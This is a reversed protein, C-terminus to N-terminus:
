DSNGLAPVKSNEPVLITRDLFEVELTANVSTEEEGVVGGERRVRLLDGSEAEVAQVVVQDRAAQVVRDLQPVEITLPGNGREGLLERDLVKDVVAFIIQDSHGGSVQANRDM